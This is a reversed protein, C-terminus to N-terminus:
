LIFNILTWLKQEVLVKTRHHKKIMEFKYNSVRFSKISLLRYTPYCTLNPLVTIIRHVVEFHGLIPLLNFAIIKLKEPRSTESFM